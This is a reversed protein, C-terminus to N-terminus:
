PCRPCGSINHCTGSVGGVAELLAKEQEVDELGRLTERSLTLKKPSTRKKM